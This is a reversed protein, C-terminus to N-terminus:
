NGQRNLRYGVIDDGASKTIPPPTPAPPSPIVADKPYYYDFTKDKGYSIVSPVRNHNGFQLNFPAVNLAAAYSTGVVKKPDLPDISGAPSAHAYPAQDLEMDNSAWRFYRILDGRSDIFVSLDRSMPAVSAQFNVTRIEGTSGGDEGEGSGVSREKLILHLLVAAQQDASASTINKVQQFTAKPRYAFGSPDNPPITFGTTAEDFTEPFMIRLTAATHVARARDRDNGCYALVADPVPEKQCKGVVAEYERNLTLQLRQVQKKITQETAGERFKMTAAVGLGVLIAMISVVVLLEVLSFGARRGASGPSFANTKM